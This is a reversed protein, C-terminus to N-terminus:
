MGECPLLTDEKSADIEDFAARLEAEVSLVSWTLAMLRLALLAEKLKGAVAVKATCVHRASEHGRMMFSMTRGTYLEMASHYAGHVFGDYGKNLFAAISVVLEKPAGFREAFREQAKTMAKRGVYYQREREALEDPDRPPPDFHQAIFREQDSTFRGEVQGEGVFQIEAAYDAVTRLIVIAEATHNVDALAMAARLGSAMRVAKAVQLTTADRAKHEWRFDGTPLSSRVPQPLRNAFVHVWDPIRELLDRTVPFDM